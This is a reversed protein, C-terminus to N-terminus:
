RALHATVVAAVASGEREAADVRRPSGARVDGIAFLGRHDGVRFDPQTPVGDDRHGGVEGGRRVEDDRGDGGYGLEALGALLERNPVGDLAGFVGDVALMREPGGGLEVYEVGVVRDDDVVVRPVGEVPLLTVKALERLAALRAPPADDFGGPGLVTVTTAVAALTEAEALAIVGGGVVAVRRGAFLGGDCAACYSVGRGELGEGGPLPRPRCGTAVIVARATLVTGDVDVQYPRDADVGAVEDTRDTDAADTSDVDFRRAPGTEDTAARVSRVRGLVLEVGAALVQEGLAAALDWGAEGPESGPHDVLREVNLLQGGVGLPDVLTV